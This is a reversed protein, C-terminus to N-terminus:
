AIRIYLKWFRFLTWSGIWYALGFSLHGVHATFINLKHRKVLEVKFITTSDCIVIDIM